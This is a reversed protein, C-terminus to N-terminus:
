TLLVLIGLHTEKEPNQFKGVLFFICFIYYENLNVKYTQQLEM